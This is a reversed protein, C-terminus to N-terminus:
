SSLAVTMRPCIRSRQRPCYFPAHKRLLFLAGLLSAPLYRGFRLTPTRCVTGPACASVCPIGVSQPADPPTVLSFSARQPSACRRNRRTPLDSVSLM